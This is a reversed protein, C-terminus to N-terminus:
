EIDIAIAETKTFRTRRDAPRILRAHYGEWMEIDARHSGGYLLLRSSTTRAHFKRPGFSPGEVVLDRIGAPMNRILDTFHRVNYGPEFGLEAWSSGFQDKATTPLNITHKYDIKEAQKM